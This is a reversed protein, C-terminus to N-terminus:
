PSLDVNSPAEGEPPHVGGGFHESILVEVVAYDWLLTWVPYATIYFYSGRHLSPAPPPPLAHECITQYAAIM